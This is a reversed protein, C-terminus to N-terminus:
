WQPVARSHHTDGEHKTNRTTLHRLKIMCIQSSQDNNHKYGKDIITGHTRTGQDEWQTAVRSGTPIFNYYKLIIHGTIRVNDAVLAECHDDDSHANISINDVVPM